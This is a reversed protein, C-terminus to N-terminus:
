ALRTPDLLPTMDKGEDFFAVIDSWDAMPYQDWFESVVAANMDANWAYSNTTVAFNDVTLATTSNSFVASLALALAIATGNAKVRTTGHAM